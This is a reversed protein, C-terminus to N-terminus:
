GKEPWPPPSRGAAPRPPAPQEAAIAERISTRVVEVFSAVLFGLLGGIVASSLGGLLAGAHSSATLMLLATSGAIGGCAAGLGVSVPVLRGLPARRLLAHSAPAPLRHAAAAPRGWGRQRSIDLDTAAAMRTGIANGAVHMAVSALLVAVGLWGAIGLWGVAVCCVALVVALRTYTVLRM